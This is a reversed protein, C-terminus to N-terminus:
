KRGRHSAYDRQQARTLTFSFQVQRNILYLGIPDAADVIPIIAKDDPVVLALEVDAIAVLCQNTLSTQLFQSNLVENLFDQVSTKTDVFLFKEVSNTYDDAACTYERFLKIRVM